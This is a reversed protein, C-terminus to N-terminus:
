SPLKSIFWASEQSPFPAMLGPESPPFLLHGTFICCLKHNFALRPLPLTLNRLIFHPLPPPLTLALPFSITTLIAHRSYPPLQAQVGSYHALHDVKGEEKSDVSGDRMLFDEIGLCQNPLSGKRWLWVLFFDIGPSALASVSVVGEPSPFRILRILWM